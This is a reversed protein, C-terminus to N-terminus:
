HANEEVGRTNDLCANSICCPGCLPHENYSEKSNKRLSAQCGAHLAVDPKLNTM